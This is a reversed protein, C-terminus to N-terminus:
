FEVQTMTTSSSTFIPPQSVPEEYAHADARARLRELLDAVLIQRAIAPDVNPAPLPERASAALLEVVPQQSATFTQILWEGANTIAANVDAFQKKLADRKLQSGVIGGIIPGLFLGAFGAFGFLCALESGEFLALVALFICGIAIAFGIAAGAATSENVRPIAIQVDPVHFRVSVQQMAEPTPSPVHTLKAAHRVDRDFTIIQQAVFQRLQHTITAGYSGDVKVQGRRITPLIRSVVDRTQFTFLSVFGRVLDLTAKRYDGLRKEAELRKKEFEQHEAAIRRRHVAAQPEISAHGRKLALVLRDHRARAVRASLAESGRLFERLRTGGYQDFDHRIGEGSAVIVIPEVDSNAGIQRAFHHVKNLIQASHQVLFRNWEAPPVREEAIGLGEARAM